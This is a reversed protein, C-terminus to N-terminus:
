KILRDFNELLDISGVKGNMLVPIRAHDEKEPNLSNFRVEYYWRDPRAAYSFMVERLRWHQISPFLEALRDRAVKVATQISVPPAEAEPDWKPTTRLDVDSVHCVYDKGQIFMGWSTGILRDRPDPDAAHFPTSSLSLFLVTGM